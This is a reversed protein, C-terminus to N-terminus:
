KNKKVASPTSPQSYLSYIIFGIGILVFPISLVQGMDLNLLGEFEIDREKIFEVFFRFGFILTITLGFYFGKAQQIGNRRYLTWNIIFIILYAIAEYLQAPHRPLQDVREFVFAWPVDAPKGIIESNMLNSLRIFCASIPTVIAIYDLVKIFNQKTNYSYVLLTLILGITGGHSALGRYGTFEYGGGPKPGIPLLMELPRTLYYEPEYFLCHGIRAGAFIGIFAYITLKELKDQSIENEAFIKKLLLYAIILGTVFLLGYYQISIGFINFIEPNVNWHIYSLNM